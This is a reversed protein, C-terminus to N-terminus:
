GEDVAFLGDCGGLEDMMSIGDVVWVICLRDARWVPKRM